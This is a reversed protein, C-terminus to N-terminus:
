ITSWADKYKEWSCTKIRGRGKGAPFLTASFKRLKQIEKVTIVYFGDEHMDDYDKSFPAYAVLADCLSKDYHGKRNRGYALTVRYSGRVESLSATKVQIRKCVGDKEAILDYSTTGTPFSIDYGLQAMRAAVALEGDTGVKLNGIM